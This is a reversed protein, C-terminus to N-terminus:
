DNEEGQFIPEFSIPEPTVDQPETRFRAAIVSGITDRPSVTAQSEIQMHCSTFYEATPGSPRIPLPLHITIRRGLQPQETFEVEVEMARPNSIRKIGVVQLKYLTDPNLQPWPKVTETWKRM